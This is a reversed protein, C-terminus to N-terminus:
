WAALIAQLNLIEEQKRLIFLCWPTPWTSSYLSHGIVPTIDATPHNLGSSSVSLIGKHEASVIVHQWINWLLGFTAQSHMLAWQAGTWKNVPGGECSGVGQGMLSRQALWFTLETSHFWHTLASAPCLPLSYGWVFWKKWISSMM